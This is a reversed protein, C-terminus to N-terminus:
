EEEEETEIKKLGIFFGREGDIMKLRNYEIGITKMEGLIYKWSYKNEFLDIIDKKSVCDNKDKTFLYDKYLVPKFEDYEESITLFEKENKEPIDFNLEYNDLLLKLYANKMKEDNYLDTYNNDRIFHNNEFDDESINSKFESDYKQVLGRRLIGEDTKISFDKNSCTNLKAQIKAAQSTGFMIEVNLKKGDVFDKILTSDLKEEPLEEVYCFRIPKELLHILQKHTKANGEQFTKTNLKFSYIDFIKDHIDFETSKGNCAKYGINMKFKTRSIDGTICYALWQLLFKRQIQDPQIKKFFLKVENLCEEDVNESYEWQLCKTVYDGKVRNRFRKNDIEYVGNKFHLNFKQEELLDFIIDSNFTTLEQNVMDCINSIKSNQKVFKLCKNINKIHDDNKAQKNLNDETNNEVLNLIRSKLEENEKLYFTLKNNFFKILHTRICYKLKNYKRDDVNWLDGDYLYVKLDQFIIDEGKLKLFVKSLNHEDPEFNTYLNIFHYKHPNYKKAYYRLSGETTITKTEERKYNWVHEFHEQNHRDSKKSWLEVIEFSDKNENKCAKIIKLWDDYQINNKLDNDICSLLNKITEISSNKIETKKTEKKNQNKLEIFGSDNSKNKKLKKEVLPFDDFFKFEKSNYNIIKSDLKEFINTYILDLGEKYGTKTTNKDEERKLRWLHPLGRNCSKSQFDSGYEKLYKEQLKQSGTDIDIIMFKSNTLNINLCTNKTMNKFKKSENVCKKFDWEMWGQPNGSIKKIYKNTKKDLRREINCFSFPIKHKKIFDLISISNTM